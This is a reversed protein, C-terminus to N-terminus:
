NRIPRVIVELDEATPEASVSELKVVWETLPIIPLNNSLEENIGKLIIDWSTPRPHVFNVLSPLKEQSLIWYVYAQGIADLPM